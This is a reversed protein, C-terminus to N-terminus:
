LSPNLSVDEKCQFLNLNWTKLWLSSSFKKKLYYNLLMQITDANIVGDRVCASIHNVTFVRNFINSDAVM